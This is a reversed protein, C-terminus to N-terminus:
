SNTVPTVAAKAKALLEETSYKRARGLSRCSLQHYKNEIKDCVAFDGSFAFVIYCNDRLSSEDIYGCYQTENHELALYKYCTNRRRDALSKCYDLGSNESLKKIENEIEISNPDPAEEDILPKVTPTPIETIPTIEEEEKIAPSPTPATEPVVVDPITPQEVERGVPAPIRIEAPGATEEGGIFFYLSFGAGGIVVIIILLFFVFKKPMHVSIPIFPKKAPKYMQDIAADILQADYGRGLLFNRLTTISYGAETQRKLYNALQEAQESTYPM